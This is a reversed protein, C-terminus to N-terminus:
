IDKLVRKFKIADWQFYTQERGHNTQLLVFLLFVIMSHTIRTPPLLCLVLFSTPKPRRHPNITYHKYMTRRVNRTASRTEVSRKYRYLMTMYTRHSKVIKWVMHEINNNPVWWIYVDSFFLHDRALLTLLFIALIQLCILLHRIM